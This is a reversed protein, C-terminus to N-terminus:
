NQDRRAKATRDHVIRAAVDRLKINAHQSMSTLM